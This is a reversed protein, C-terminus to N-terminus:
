PSVVRYFRQNLNTISSDTVATTERTNTFSFLDMWGDGALNTSGQLRYNRGIEGTVNLELGDSRWGGVALVAPAFSDSQWVTSGRVVVFASNGYAIGGHVSEQTFRYPCPWDIGNASTAVYWRGVAVFRGNGHSVAYFPNHCCGPNRWTWNILDPSSEIIAGCPFNGNGGVRVFLGDDGTISLFPGAL